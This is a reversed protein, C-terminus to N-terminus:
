GAQVAELAVAVDAADAGADVVGEGRGAALGQGLEHALERPLVALWFDAGVLARKTCQRPTGRKWRWGDYVSTKRWRGLVPPMVRRSIRSLRMPWRGTSRMSSGSRWAWHSRAWGSAQRARSARTWPWM